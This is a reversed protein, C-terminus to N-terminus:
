NLDADTIQWIQTLLTRGLGSLYRQMLRNMRHKFIEWAGPSSWDVESAVAERLLLVWRGDCFRSIGIM